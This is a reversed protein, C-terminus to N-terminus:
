SDSPLGVDGAGGEQGDGQTHKYTGADPEYTHKPSKNGFCALRYLPGMKEQHIITDKYVFWISAALLM